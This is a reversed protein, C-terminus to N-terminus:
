FYYNIRSFFFVKYGNQYVAAVATKLGHDRLYSYLQQVVTWFFALLVLLPCGVLFIVVKFWADPVVSMLLIMVALFFLFELFHLIIWPWCLLKTKAAAAWILLTDATILVVNVTIPIAMFDGSKQILYNRVSVTDESLTGNILAPPPLFVGREAFWDIVLAVHNEVDRMLVFTLILFATQVLLFLIGIAFVFIRLSCCNLFDSAAM